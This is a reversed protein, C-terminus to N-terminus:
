SFHEVVGTRAAHAVRPDAPPPDLLTQYPVGTRTAEAMADYIELIVRKTRYEGHAAEDKRKVIPFTEMIYDVDDREIGYLHFYAADLECRLLFRREEDWRFPPGDYGCDKAFAELDWATYTLELVRPLLWYELAQRNWSPSDWFRHPSPVPLQQLIFISMNTGGMKQRAVYDFVFSSLSGYLGMFTRTSVLHPLLLFGSDGFGYRPFVSCVFTRENTANTIKRWGLLWGARWKGALRADVEVAPIWYFPQPTYYANKYDDFSTSPLSTFGRDTGRSKYSGYRHDFLQIMKSEYLPLYKADGRLFVSGESQWGKEELQARTGFLHSSTNMMFMLMGQFGWHNVEDGNAENVLVPIRGYISKTVEGDHRSRFIPCTRTNPNLLAIEDAGLTFHRTEDRLHETQRAFFVFDARLHSRQVGAAVLLCFKTAHHVGPFLFEENEFSYLSVLSGTDMLERFFYQNFSDTAIGTPVIVGMYGTAALISRSLEAFLPASNIRGYSTLPYRGSTHIFHQTGENTRTIELFGRYLSPDTTALTEILRNRASMHQANAIQPNREAFFERADIQIQEWPPNGLVVDFGGLWGALENNPNENPSPVRFVDPFAIQWHFFQYEEALRRIEDRMWIAINRPNREIDRFINETIPYAFNADRSKKWVFAACWADAWLRTFEYGSSRITQEWLEQKRRVSAVSDNPIEALSQLASGLDGLRDWPATALQQDFSLQGARQEKNRKKWESVYKKDDGEIPTFAADPIGGALLAPTTGLLSNGCQIHHDLFSLPKGPDMAELWLSVKCLEVAMPNIDVGYICSSIVDRLATRIAEPSSEEDGTRIAALRKAMRHAAAVLFHGSGAAPDVIKLKLMAQERDTAGKLAEDLVPELASDLLEAILSTPTYYSGTTKRENGGATELAFTRADLNLQPHLELLSEYVSGLEEAGLNRYDVPWRAGETQMFALHRVAELLDYNAIECGVLAAVAANSWLYGGLAPLGLAPCGSETGLQESVLTLGHWLDSHRTGRRRDALERLRATSYYAEYRRRAEDTANPDLLLDRDESVFLFLLRYVSRLLQRYYEQKDLAGDRLKERLEQNAPHALFGRGLASIAAEVGARLHELARTGREAAERTWQELWCLEPREGEVRSEHCLLWLLVFDSYVEGEMMGQLDFEVFAQKTLRASDRLLRLRQGNSVIGWLRADSRNLLEQVMSHPSMRAAGAVGKARDNLDVRAGVLHIPVDGWAHSVPYSKDDLEVARSTQLRGYGLVDFLPLLWRERTVTTGPEGEPLQDIQTQFVEWAGLLRNWARAIVENFREGPILHYDTESLGKLNRDREGIRQLLDAPLLAGQTQITTFIGRSSPM